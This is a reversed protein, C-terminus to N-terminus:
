DLGAAALPLGFYNEDQAGYVRMTFGSDPTRSINCQQAVKERQGELLSAQFDIQASLM